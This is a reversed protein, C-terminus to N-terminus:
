PRVFINMSDSRVYFAHLVSKQFYDLIRFKSCYATFFRNSEPTIEIHSNIQGSYVSLSPGSILHTSYRSSPCRASPCRAMPCIVTQCRAMLCSAQPYRATPYSYMPFRTQLCGAIPYRDMLYRVTLCFDSIEVNSIQGCHIHGDSLGSLLIDSRAPFRIMLCRGKPYRANSYRATPYSAMPCRATLYRSMLSSLNQYIAKLYRAM